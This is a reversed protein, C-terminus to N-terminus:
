PYTPVQTYVLTGPNPPNVDKVGESSTKTLVLNVTYCVESGNKILKVGYEAVSMDGQPMDMNHEVLIPADSTALAAIIDKAARSLYPFSLRISNTLVTSRGSLIMVDGKVNTKTQKNEKIIPEAEPIRAAWDTGNLKFFIATM